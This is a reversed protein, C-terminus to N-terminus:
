SAALWSFLLPGLARQRLLGFSSGQPPVSFGRVRRHVVIFSGLNESNVARCQKSQDQVLCLLLFQNRIPAGESSEFSFPLPCFIFRIPAHQSEM